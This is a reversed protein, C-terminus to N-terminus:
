AAEPELNLNLLAQSLSEAYDQPKKTEEKHSATEQTPSSPLEDMLEMELKVFEDELDEDEFVVSQHPMAASLVLESAYVQFVLCLSLSFALLM